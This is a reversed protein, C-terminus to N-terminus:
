ASRVAKDVSKRRRERKEKRKKRTIQAKVAGERRSWQGHSREVFVQGPAQQGGASEARGIGLCGGRGDLAARDGGDDRLLRGRQHGKEIGLGVVAIDAGLDGFAQQAIVGLELGLRQQGRGPRDAGITQLVAELQALADLEMIPAVEARGIHAVREQGLFLQARTAADSQLVQLPDIRGVCVRRHQHQGLRRRKQELRQRRCLQRDHRRVAIAIAVRQAAGVGIRRDTCARENKLLPHAAAMHDELAVRVVPAGTHGMHVPHHDAKHTVRGRDRRGDFRTLGIHRLVQGQGVQAAQQLLGVELEIGAIVREQVVRREQLEVDLVWHQGLGLHAMGNGMRDVAVEDDVVDVVLLGLQHVRGDGLHQAGIVVVALEVVAKIHGAGVLQEISGAVRALGIALAKCELEGVDGARLELLRGLVQARRQVTHADLHVNQITVQGGEELTGIGRALKVQVEVAQAAQKIWRHAHLADVPGVADLVRQDPDIGRVVVVRLHVVQEALSSDLHVLGLTGRLEALNLLNHATIQRDVRDRGHRRRQPYVARPHM